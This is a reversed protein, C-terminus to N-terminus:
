FPGQIEYTTGPFRQSSFYLRRGDPSLAPGTLESGFHGVVQVMPRLEGGPTLAVIQLDGPDEAVYVDGNPAAFVNDVGSLIPNSSTAPDYVIEIEGARLDIKWVRDDGKTAFFLAGDRFSCGEGGNFATALPAQHRTAVSTAIPDAVEHWALGRVDGAAIPGEGSPDLIEVAELRGSGLDPFKAPTFRYLLGDREDETLYVCEGIPDVAAAEHKFIGLGRRVVGQSGPVFPDCEYVLGDSVEECSLWTDWPTPGGACNRRTGSLISYAAVVTGDAGFRLVGVGGGGRDIEANSVYVWGGDPAAFTAGGDPAHHWVFDTGEVRQGSIAVVRSRFNPLLRLGNEDAALLPSSAGGSVSCAVSLLSAGGLMSAAATWAGSASLILLSRRTMTSPENKM